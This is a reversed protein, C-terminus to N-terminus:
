TACMYPFFVPFSVGADVVRLALLGLQLFIVFMLVYCSNQYCIILTVCIDTVTLCYIQAYYFSITSICPFLM